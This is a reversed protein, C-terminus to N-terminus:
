GVLGGPFELFWQKLYFHSQSTNCKKAIVQFSGMEVGPDSGWPICCLLLDLLCNIVPQGAPKKRTTEIANPLGSGKREVTQITATCPSFVAAPGGGLQGCKLLPQRPARM